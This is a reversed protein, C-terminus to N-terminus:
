RRKLLKLTCMKETKEGNPAFAIQAGESRFPVKLPERGEGRTEKGERGGVM